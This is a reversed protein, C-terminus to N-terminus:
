EIYYRDKTTSALGGIKEQKAQRMDSGKSKKVKAL